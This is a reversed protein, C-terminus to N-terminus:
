KDTSQCFRKGNRIARRWGHQALSLDDIWAESGTNGKIGYAGWAPTLTERHQCHFLYDNHSSHGRLQPLEFWCRRLLAEYGERRARDRPWKLYIHAHFSDRRKHIYVSRLLPEELAGCCRQTWADIAALLTKDAAAHEQAVRLTLLLQWNQGLEYHKLAEAQQAAALVGGRSSSYDEFARCLTTPRRTANEM